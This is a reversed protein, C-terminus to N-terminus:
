SGGGEGSSGESRDIVADLGAQTVGTFKAVVTGDPAVVYSEPVGSVGFDLAVRGTTEGVVVPWDGGREDFFRRVNAVEDSYVVSVLHVGDDAAQHEESFRVLEPHEVICPTCWAAFFNVVVWDGRYLDIDYTQGDLTEGTLPPVARGVIKNEIRDGTPRTALVVILAVVVVGVGIAVNRALHGSRRRVLEGDRGSGGDDHPGAPREGVATM